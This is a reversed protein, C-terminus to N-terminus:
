CRDTQREMLRDTRGDTQWDTFSTIQQGEQRQRAALSGATTRYPSEGRQGGCNGQFIACCYCSVTYRSSAAALYFQRRWFNYNSFKLILNIRIFFYCSTQRNTVFSRVLRQVSQTRRLLYAEWLDRSPKYSNQPLTRGGDMSFNVFIFFIIFFAARCFNKCNALFM